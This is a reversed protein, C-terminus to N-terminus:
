GFLRVRFDPATESPNSIASNCSAWVGHATSGSTPLQRPALLCLRPAPARALFAALKDCLLSAELTDTAARRAGARGRRWGGGEEEAEAAAAAQAEAERRQEAAAADNAGLTLARIRRAFAPLSARQAKPLSAVAELM